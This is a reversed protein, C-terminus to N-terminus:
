LASEIPRAFRTRACAVERRRLWGGLIGFGGAADVAAVLRGDAVLDIPARLIPHNIGLLRTVPMTISVRPDM